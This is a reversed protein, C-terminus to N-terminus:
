MLNPMRGKRGGMEKECERFDQLSMQKREQTDKASAERSQKESTHASRANVQGASASRITGLPCKRDAAYGLGYKCVWAPTTRSSQNM